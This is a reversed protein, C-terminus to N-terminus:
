DLFSSGELFQWSNLISAAMPPIGAPRNRLEQYQIVYPRGGHLVLWHRITPFVMGPHVLLAADEGDVTAPESALHPGDAEAATLAREFQALSTVRLDLCPFFRVRCSELTGDPSGVTIFIRPGASTIEVSGPEVEEASWGPQIEVAFGANSFVRLEGSTGNSSPRPESVPDISPTPISAPTPEGAALVGVALLVAAAAGAALVVIAASTESPRSVRVEEHPAM